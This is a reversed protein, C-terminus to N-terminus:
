LKSSYSKEVDVGLLIRTIERNIDTDNEYFDNFNINIFDLSKIFSDRYLNFKDSINM